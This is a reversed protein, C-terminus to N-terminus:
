RFHLDEGWLRYDGEGSTVALSEKSLGNGSVLVLVRSGRLTHLSTHSERFRTSNCRLVWVDEKDIGPIENQVDHNSPM